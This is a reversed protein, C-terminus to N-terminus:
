FLSMHLGQECEPHTKKLMDTKATYTGTHSSDFLLFVNRITEKLPAEKEWDEKFM